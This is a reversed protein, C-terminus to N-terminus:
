RSVEEPENVGHPKERLVSQEEEPKGDDDRGDQERGRGRDYRRVGGLAESQRRNRWRRARTDRCLYRADAGGAERMREPRFHEPSVEQRPDEEPQPGREENSQVDHNQHGRDA